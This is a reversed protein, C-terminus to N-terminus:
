DCGANRPPAEELQSIDLLIGPFTNYHERPEPLQTSGAIVTAALVLRYERPGSPCVM